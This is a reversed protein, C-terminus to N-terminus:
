TSSEILVKRGINGGGSNTPERSHPAIQFTIRCRTAGAPNRCSVVFTRKAMWVQRAKKRKQTSTSAQIGLSRGKDDGFDSEAQKSLSKRRQIREESVDDLTQNELLMEVPIASISASIERQPITGSICGLPCFFPINYIWLTVIAASFLKSKPCFPVHVLWNEFRVDIWDKVANKAM